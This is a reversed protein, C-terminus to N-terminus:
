YSKLLSSSWISFLSKGISFMHWHSSWGWATLLNYYLEKLEAKLQIVTYSRSIISMIFCKLMLSTKLIQSWFKSAGTQVVTLFKLKIWDNSKKSRFKAFKPLFKPIM